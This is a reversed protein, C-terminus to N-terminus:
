FLENPFFFGSFRSFNLKERCLVARNQLKEMKPFLQVWFFIGSTKGDYSAATEPFM